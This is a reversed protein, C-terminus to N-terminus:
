AGDTIFVIDAAFFNEREVPAGAMRKLMALQGAHTMADSLPGQLLRAATDPTLDPGRALARDLEEQVARFRDVEEEWSQPPERKATPASSDLERCAFWIVDGMHALIARPSRAGQGPEHDPFGEPVHALVKDMRYALSGLSHRLALIWIDRTSQTM